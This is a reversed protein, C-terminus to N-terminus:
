YIYIIIINLYLCMKNGAMKQGGPEKIVIDNGDERRWQVHPEPHGKARCRLKVTGGEPIMIDGSTEEPIFDPPVTVDLYGM